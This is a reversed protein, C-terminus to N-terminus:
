PAGCSLWEALRDREEEPTDDPGPPMSDNSGAARAFIRDRHDRVSQSTAFDFSPPAGKRDGENRGHCTQCYNGMFGAGFNEYTLKTGETPCSMQQAPKCAASALLTALILHRWM